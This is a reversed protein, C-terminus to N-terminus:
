RAPYSLRFNSKEYEPLFKSVKAPVQQGLQVSSPPMIKRLQSVEILTYNLSPQRNEDGTVHAEGFHAYCTSFFAKTEHLRCGKPTLRLFVDM